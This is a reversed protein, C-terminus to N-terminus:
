RIRVQKRTAASGSLNDKFAERPDCKYERSVHVQRRQRSNFKGHNWKNEFTVEANAPVASDVFFPLSFLSLTFAHSKERWAKIISDKM